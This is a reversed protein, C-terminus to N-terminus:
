THLLSVFPRPPLSPPLSLPLSTFGGQSAVGLQKSEDWLSGGRFKGYDILIYKINGSYIKIWKTGDPLTHPLLCM